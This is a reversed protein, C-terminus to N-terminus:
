DINFVFLVAYLTNGSFQLPLEFEQWHKKMLIIPEQNASEETILRVQESFLFAIIIFNVLSVVKFFAAYRSLVM